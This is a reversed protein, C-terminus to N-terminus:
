NLHGSSTPISLYFLFLIPDWVSMSIVGLASHLPLAPYLKETFSPPQTGSSIAKYLGNAVKHMPLFVQNYFIPPLESARLLGNFSGSVALM